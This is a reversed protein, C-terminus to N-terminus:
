SRGDLSKAIATIRSRHARARTVAQQATMREYTVSWLDLTLPRAIMVDPLRHREEDTLSVSRCYRDLSRAAGRPGAAFLLFALPWIRPGRGVGIWDIIVPPQDGQPVANPPTLDAHILAEPLGVGDDADALADVIEAVSPGLQGGLRLAEDIEQSPTAGLRHWGGGPPLDDGSRNALRGLLGACWAMVFGPRPAPSPEVYQTVLVHRGNGLALVPTETPCREAPFRTDALDRLVHAAGDVAVREVTPGFVRGVLDPESESRRLRYVDVDLESRLLLPQEISEAVADIVTAPDSVVPRVRV